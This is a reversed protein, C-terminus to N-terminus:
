CVMCCTSTVSWWQSALEILPLRQKHNQKASERNGSVLDTLGLYYYANVVRGTRIPNGEIAEVSKRL